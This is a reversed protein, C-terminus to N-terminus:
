DKIKRNWFAYVDIGQLAKSVTQVNIDVPCTIVCRGCGVCSPKGYKSIFAQLKHTYWLKLRDSRRERFNEGGAVESYDSLTCSDWYRLRKGYNDGPFRSDIINYCNCTPCVMSCQGCALCANGAKEWLPDNYRLEMLDPMAIFNIKTKYANDRQIQHYIFDQVDKETPKDNFIEPMKRILDDGTSSGIWVMFFDDLDSFFLDFGEAIVHTNTSKAFCHEDPMCSFGLVITRKRSEIYYPDPFDKGFLKDLILIGHIDCPHIGFIVKDRIHSFDGQYGQATLRFMNFMQPIIIKKPPLITRIITLDIKGLDDIVEFVCRDQKRVPAWLEKTQTISELFPILHEKKLKVIRM